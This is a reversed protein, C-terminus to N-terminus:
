WTEKEEHEEDSRDRLNHAEGAAEEMMQPSLPVEITTHTVMSGYYSASALLCLSGRLAM